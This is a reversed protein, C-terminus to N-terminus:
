LSAGKDCKVEIKSDDKDIFYLTVQTDSYASFYNRPKTIITHLIKNPTLSHSPKPLSPALISTLAKALNNRIM